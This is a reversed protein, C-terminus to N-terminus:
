VRIEVRLPSVFVKVGEVRDVVVTQGQAIPSGDTSRATWTMGGLKVQGTPAINDVAETVHGRSGIVSDVNTRIIKPNVYRRLFPRVLALLAISVVLFLICQLGFGGGLVATLLAVVSGAAFWISVLAVTSAEVLVFLVLLGFWIWAFM